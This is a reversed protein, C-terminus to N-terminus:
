SDKEGLLQVSFDSGHVEQRLKQVLKLGSRLVM